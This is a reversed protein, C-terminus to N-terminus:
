GPNRVRYKCVTDSVPYDKYPIHAVSKDSELFDGSDRRPSRFLIAEPLDMESQSVWVADMDYPQRFVVNGM